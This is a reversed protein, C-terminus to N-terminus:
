RARIAMEIDSAVRVRLNLNGALAFVLNCAVLKTAVTVEFFVGLSQVADVILHQCTAVEVSGYTGIAMSRM